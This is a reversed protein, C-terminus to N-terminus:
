PQELLDLSLQLWAPADIELLLNPQRAYLQFFAQCNLLDRLQPDSIQSLALNLLRDAMEQAFTKTM